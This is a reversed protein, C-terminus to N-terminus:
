LAGTKNAQQKWYTWPLLRELVWQQVQLDSTKANLAQTVWRWWAHIGQGFSPIQRKKPTL